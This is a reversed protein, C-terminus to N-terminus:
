DARNIKLVFPSYAGAKTSEAGASMTPSFPRQAPTNACAAGGPGSSVNFDATPHADPTGPTSWPIFDSTTTYKGCTVPTMLPARAGPKLDVAFHSAPLQPNQTFVTTIQGTEKDATAIGPLKFNVGYRPNELEILLRFKGDSNGGLPLDGPHPKLLYVDGPIPEPGIVKEVGDKDPVPDRRALLPSTAMASGIKAEDPCTVPKTTDYHVQDGAPDSAQDSCAGLGDASAPSIALGAPLKVTIDKPPPAQPM